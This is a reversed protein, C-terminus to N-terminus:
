VGGCLFASLKCRLVALRRAFAASAGTGRGASRALYHRALFVALPLPSDSNRVMDAERREFDKLCGAREGCMALFDVIERRLQRYHCAISAADAQKVMDRCGTGLLLRLLGLSFTQLAGDRELRSRVAEFACLWLLPRGDSRVNDQLSGPRGIRYHYFADNVVSVRQAEAVAICSFYLDNVRLQEQFWIGREALYARRVLKNWPNARADTFLFDAADIGPFVDPMAALRKSPYAAYPVSCVADHRYAGALVVDCKLRVARRYMRKLMTSGCWDDPDCFFVYDCSAERLGRNRAAGAGANAQTLVKVRRDGSAINRLIGLSGDTSGDDVCVVEIDRLTQGLVSGLCEGLYREVNYVPIIVSVKPATVAVM